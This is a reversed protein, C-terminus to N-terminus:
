LRGKPSGLSSPSHVQHYSGWFSHSVFHLVKSRRTFFQIQFRLPWPLMFFLGPFSRNQFPLSDRLIPEGKGM